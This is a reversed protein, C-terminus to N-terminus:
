TSHLLSDVYKFDEQRGIFIYIYTYIRIYTFAHLRIESVLFTFGTFLISANKNSTAQPLLQCSM